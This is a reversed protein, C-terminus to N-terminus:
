VSTVLPRFTHLFASKRSALTRLARRLEVWDAARVADGVAILALQSELCTLVHAVDRGEVIAETTPICTLTKVYIFSKSKM